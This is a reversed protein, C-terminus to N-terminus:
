VGRKANRIKEASTFDATAVHGPLPLVRENIADLIWETQPFFSDELEFAPTIWDKAGVVCVPADLYKFALESINAALEKMFSNRECADGCVVVRGTKKVSEIVPNYNFPVLSRADIVEASLGYKEELMNAADIARYLMAGISLITIDKGERKIDPEGIPIEYSGEPIGGEHFQEGIDYTRQSELFIVPDTGNLATTMLGKADYPTAPYVVKLGPIHALLASWDQSHQAGYKSGVSMRLVVPMQLVGASMAQWKSLQNFTEDGARGLFDIYMLEVCVRGGSMAYGVAAGVISAEAIPSNFLRQYPISLEMNRYCGFASGWDRLDEGFSVFTPDEYYKDLIAEFIADRFSYQKIKPVPKGDVLHFRAKGQIQKYRPNEEKPILVAPKDDGLKEKKDNSFMLDAIADPYKVLNIRPSIDDNTALECCRRVVEACEEHLTECEEVTAIKAEALEHKFAEIPDVERWAEIEERTRYTSNDSPSHGSLRYTVVDLFIPGKGANIIDAKRKYADIVALPNYGDVREAHMSDPNLAAGIRAIMDMGMTEGKTQGGMGYGNNFINFVLPLGGKYEGEWLKTYQDMTSFVMGEWVPGCATAADGINCIVMGPKRNAKKYLAAGPAIPGSGGVIANNPYSGFPTFFAHMSGGLGKNFGNERAFTEATMGYLIFYKAIDQINQTKIHKEVVSLTSGDFFNSMIDMLEKDSLKHAASLCKAIIEGHSRHSGFTLDDKTLIYSQGVASAEQGISLHAPGPHQYPVGRYEGQVKIQNIMTEFERILLMDRYIRLFDDKSFNGKEDKASKQYTNVPIDPINISSPKRLEDPQYELIKTM